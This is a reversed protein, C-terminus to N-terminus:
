VPNPMGGDQMQMLMMAMAAEQKTIGVAALADDIVNNVWKDIIPGLEEKSKQDQEHEGGRVNIGAAKMFTQPLFFGMLGVSILTCHASTTALAFIARKTCCGCYALTILTFATELLKVPLIILSVIAQALFLLRVGINSLISVVWSSNPDSVKAILSGGVISKTPLFTVQDIYSMQQYLSQGKALAQRPDLNIRFAM